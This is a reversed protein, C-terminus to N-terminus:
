TTWFESRLRGDKVSGGVTHPDDPAVRAARWILGGYLDRGASKRINGRPVQLWRTYGGEAAPNESELPWYVRGRMSDPDVRLRLSRLRRTRCNIM